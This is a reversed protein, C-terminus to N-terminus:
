GKSYWPGTKYDFYAKMANADHAKIIERLHEAHDPAIVDLPCIKSERDGNCGEVILLHGDLERDCM